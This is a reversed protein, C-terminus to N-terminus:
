KVKVRKLAAPKHAAVAGTGSSKVLLQPHDPSAAVHHTKIDTPAVLKKKVSGTVQGQSSNWSVKDGAKFDNTAM